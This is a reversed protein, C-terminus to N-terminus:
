QGCCGKGMSAAQRLVQELVGPDQPGPAAPQPPADLCSLILTAPDSPATPLPRHTVVACGDDCEGPDPQVTIRVRSFGRETGLGSVCAYDAAAELLYCNGTWRWHNPTGPPCNGAVPTGLPYYGADPVNGVPMILPGTAPGLSIPFTEDTLVVGNVAFTKRYSGSESGGARLWSGRFTSLTTSFATSEYEAQWEVLMRGRVQHACCRAPYHTNPESAALPNLSYTCDGGQCECCSTFPGAGPYQTYGAPLSSSASPWDWVYCVGGINVAPCRIGASFSSALQHGCVFLKPTEGQVVQGPCPRLFVYAASACVPDGCEATCALDPGAPGIADCPLPCYAEGPPLSPLGTTGPLIYRACGSVNVPEPYWCWGGWRIVPRVPLECIRVGGCRLTAGVYIAAAPPAAMGCPHLAAECPVFKYYWPCGPAPRCCPPACGETYARGQPDVLEQGLDNVYIRSM